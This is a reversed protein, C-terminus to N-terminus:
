RPPSTPLSTELQQIVGTLCVAPLPRSLASLTSCISATLINASGLIARAIQGKSSRLALAVQRLTMGAVLGAPVASGVSVYHSAVDLFPLTGRATAFPATDYRAYQGIEQPTLTASSGGLPATTEVAEFVVPGQYAGAFGISSLTPGFSLPTLGRFTGGLEILSSAVVLNEVDCAACGPGASWLYEVVPTASPSTIFTSETTRMLPISQGGQGIAATLLPDRSASTLVSVASRQASPPMTTPVPSTTTTPLSSANTSPSVGNVVKPSLHSLALMSGIIVLVLVISIVSAVGVLRRRRSPEAARARDLALMDALARELRERQAEPSQLQSTSTASTLTAGRIRGATSSSERADKDDSV